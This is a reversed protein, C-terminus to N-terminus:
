SPFMSRSPLTCSTAAAWPAANRWFGFTEEPSMAEQAACQPCIKLDIAIFGCVKLASSVVHIVIVVNPDGFRTVLVERQHLGRLNMHLVTLPQFFEELFFKVALRRHDRMM